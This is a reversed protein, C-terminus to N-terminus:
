NKPAFPPPTFTPPALPNIQRVVEPTKPTRHTLIYILELIGCTNFILLVVFWALDNNRASKWLAVAKLICVVIILIIIFIVAPLVLGVGMGSFFPIGKLVAPDFSGSSTAVFTFNTM